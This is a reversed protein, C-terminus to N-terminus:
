ELFKFSLHRVCVQLEEESSDFSAKAQKYARDANDLKTSYDNYLSELKHLSNQMQDMRTSNSEMTKTLKGLEENNSESEVKAKDVAKKREELQDVSESHKRNIQELQEDFERVRQELEEVDPPEPRNNREAQLNTIERDIQRIQNGLSSIRAQDPKLEREIEAIERRQTNAQREMTDLEESLHQVEAEYQHIIGSMDTALRNSPRTNANFNTAGSRKFVKSGDPLYCTIRADRSVVREAEHQDKVLAANHFTAQDVLVNFVMPSSCTVTAEVTRVDQPLDGRIDYRNNEYKQLIVNVTNMGVRNGLEKLIKEDYGNSDVIFYSLISGLAADVAQGWKSEKLKLEMGIPGIPVIRFRSQNREIADLLAPMQRGWKFAPNDTSRKAQEIKQRADGIQKRKIDLSQQYKRAETRKGQLVNTKEHLSAQLTRQEEECQQKQQTLNAIKAEFAEDEDTTSRMAEKRASDIHEQAKRRRTQIARKTQLQEDIDAQPLFVTLFSFM